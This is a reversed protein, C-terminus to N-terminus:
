FKLYYTTIMSGLYSSDMSDINVFEVGIDFTKLGQKVWKAMARCKIKRSGLPILLDIVENIPIAKETKIKAGRKSLDLLQGEMLGLGVKPSFMRVIITSTTLTLKKIENTSLRQHSRKDSNGSSTSDDLEIELSPIDNWTINKDAM